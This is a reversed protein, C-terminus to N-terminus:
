LAVAIPDLVVDGTTASDGVQCSDNLGWCVMQSQWLACGHGQGLALSQWQGGFPSLTPTWRQQLTGDGLQGTSNAGWCWRQGAADLACSHEGAVAVHIFPQGDAVVTPEPLNVNSGNGLQGAGGAGWCWLTADTTLACSHQDVDVYQWRTGPWVPKPAATIGDVGVVGADLGLQGVDNSGWCWLGFDGDIACTHQFGAAVQRWPRGQPHPIRNPERIPGNFNGTGVQGVTNGGWCWLQNATDIGCTHKYGTSVQLYSSAGQNVWSPEARFTDFTDLGLQGEENAGFCHLNRELDIACAHRYRVSIDRWRLSSVLTPEASCAGSGGGSSSLPGGWCYLKDAADIACSDHLGAHQKDIVVTRAPVICVGNACEFGAPCGSQSCDTTPPVPPPPNGTGGGSNGGSTSGATTGGTSGGTTGQTRLAHEQFTFLPDDGTGSGNGSDGGDLLLGCGTLGVSALLVTLHVSNRM